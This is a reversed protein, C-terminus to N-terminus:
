LIGIQPLKAANIAEFDHFNEESAGEASALNRYKRQRLRAGFLICEHAWVKPSTEVKLLSMRMTIRIYVITMRIYVVHKEM